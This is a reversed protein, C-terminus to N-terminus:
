KESCGYSVPTGYFFGKLTEGPAFLPIDLPRANPPGEATLRLQLRWAGRVVFPQPRLSLWDTHALEKTDCTGLALV